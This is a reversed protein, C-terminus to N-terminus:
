LPLNLYIAYCVHDFNRVLEERSYWLVKAGAEVQGVEILDLFILLVGEWEKENTRNRKETPHIM